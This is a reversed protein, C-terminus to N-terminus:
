QRGFADLAGDILLDSGSSALKQAEKITERLFVGLEDYKSEFVTLGGAMAHGGGKVLLGEEVAARIAGGIDVGQM